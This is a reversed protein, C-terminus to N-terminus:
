DAFLRKLAHRITTDDDFIDIVESRNSTWTSLQASFAVPEDVVWVMRSQLASTTIVGKCQQLLTLNLRSSDVVICSTPLTLLARLSNPGIAQRIQAVRGAILGHWREEFSPSTTVIIATGSPRTMNDREIRADEPPM